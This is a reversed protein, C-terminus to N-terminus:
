NIVQLLTNWRKNDDTFALWQTFFYYRRDIKRKINGVGERANQCPSQADPRLFLSFTFSHCHSQICSSIKFCSRFYYLSCDQFNFSYFVHLKIRHTELMSMPSRNQYSSASFHNRVPDLFHGLRTIFTHTHTHTRHTHTPPPTHHLNEKTLNKLINKKRKCSLFILLEM